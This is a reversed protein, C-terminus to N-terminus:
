RPWSPGNGDSFILTHSSSPYIAQCVCVYRRTSICCLQWFLVSRPISAQQWCSLWQFWWFVIQLPSFTSIPMKPRKKVKKAIPWYVPPPKHYKSPPEPCKVLKPLGLIALRCQFDIMGSCLFNQGQLVPDLACIIM